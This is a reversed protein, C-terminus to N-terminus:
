PWPWERRQRQRARRRDVQGADDLGKSGGQFYTGADRPSSGPSRIEQRGPSRPMRPQTLLLRQPAADAPTCPTSSPRASRTPSTSCSCRTTPPAEASARRHPDARRVRHDVQVAAPDLGLPGLWPFTPTIPFYPCGSCGPWRSRHQRGDPLDGRCGVISCPVIPVGTRLAASVFGGRGFRQLRYRECFPKGIGKFGEPWVGVLEGARWCGSPTRTARWPPGPRAPWSASSRCDPVGPRSGLLGCSAPARTTTTRRGGAGDARGAADHRLPERRDARRRRGAHERHRPGRGPVVERVAAAAAAAAGPRHAGPRVRVRRGRLRRDDAAAPVGAVGRGAAGARASCSARRRSSGPSAAVPRPEDVSDDTVPEVAARRDPRASGARGAGADRGARADRGGRLADHRPRQRSGTAAWGIPIVEADPWAVGGARRQRLEAVGASVAGPGLATARVRRLGRATTYKPTFGFEDRM